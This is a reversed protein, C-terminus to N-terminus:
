NLKKKKTEERNEWKLQVFLRFLHGMLQGISKIVSIKLLMKVRLQDLELHRSCASSYKQYERM